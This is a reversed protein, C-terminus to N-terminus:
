RKVEASHASEMVTEELASSTSLFYFSQSTPDGYARTLWAHDLLQSMRDTGKLGGCFEELPYHARRKDIM